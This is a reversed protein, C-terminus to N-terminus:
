SMFHFQNRLVFSVKQTNSKIGIQSNDGCCRAQSFEEGESARQQRSVCSWLLSFQQFTCMQEDGRIQADSM